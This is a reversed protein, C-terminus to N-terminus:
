KHYPINRLISFARYVQELLLVRCMEHTWTMRGLSLKLQARERTEPSTGEPGGIVFIIDRTGRNQEADIWAAFEGSRFERGQEDLVVVLARDTMHKRVEASEAAVLQEGHLSRRKGIDPVETIECSTLHRLRDFYDRLLSRIPENRTKGVWVFKLHM